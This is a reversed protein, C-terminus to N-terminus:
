VAVVEGAVLVQKFKHVENGHQCWGKRIKRSFLEAKSGPCLEEVFKYFEDPKKSHEGANAALLTTQNSLTITPKGRVCMLCHETKGRLWDGTGMKQKAWTLMTKYTFGWAEAIEFSHPIHSNTTWLWLVCDDHAISAVDLSRIEELSMSPYPNSVRHSPDNARKKYSWPPDIVIVRFPGEPLPPLESVIREAAEKIKLRRHVGNVKGTRVAVAILKEDGSEMIEDLKEWQRGSIGIASGIQDRSDSKSSEPFKGSHKDTRTGQRKKAEKKLYPELRKGMAHLEDLGFDKRCTNEDLEAKLRDFIETFASVRFCPISERGLKKFAAIRRRGAILHKETDITIPQLLGVDEISKCLSGINGMERRVRRGIKVDAIFVSKSTNGNIQNM